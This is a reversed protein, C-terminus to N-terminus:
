YILVKISQRAHGQWAQLIVPGAPWSTAPILSEGFPIRGDWIRRGLADYIRLPCDTFREDLLLVAIQREGPRYRAEMRLTQSIAPLLASSVSKGTRYATLGGRLNGV